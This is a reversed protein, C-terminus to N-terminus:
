GQGSGSQEALLAKNIVIHEAKLTVPRVQSVRTIILPDSFYPRNERPTYYNSRRSVNQQNKHRTPNNTGNNNTFSSSINGINHPYSYRGQNKTRFGTKYPGCFRNHGRGRNNFNTPTSTVPRNVQPPILPKFTNM